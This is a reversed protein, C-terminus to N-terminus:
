KIIIEMCPSSHTPMIKKAKIAKEMNGYKEIDKSSVKYENEICANGKYVQEGVASNLPVHSMIAKPAAFGAILICFVIIGMIIKNQFDM